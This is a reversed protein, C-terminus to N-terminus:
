GRGRNRVVKYKLPDPGFRNQGYTGSCCGLEILLWFIGIGTFAILLWWGSKDRDHLRKTNTALLAWTLCLICVSVIMSDTDEIELLGVIGRVIIFVGFILLQTLWWKEWNWSRYYFCRIDAVADAAM